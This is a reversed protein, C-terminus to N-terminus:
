CDYVNGGRCNCHAECRCVPSCEGCDCGCSGRGSSRRRGNGASQGTKCTYCITYPAKVPGKCKLCRGPTSVLAPAGAVLSRAADAKADPVEWVKKDANWKGGLARIQDKVPFTNGSISTM